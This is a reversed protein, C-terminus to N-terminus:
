FTLTARAGRLSFAAFISPLLRVDVVADAM